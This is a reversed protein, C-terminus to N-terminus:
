GAEALVAEVAAALEAPIRAGEILQGGARQIADVVPAAWKDEWMILLVSSGDELAAAAHEIDEQSIVGGVDGEIALFASLREDEDIEVALITGDEGRSVLVVDILRIIDNEVLKALESAIDGTFNNEPFGIIVYELPAAM